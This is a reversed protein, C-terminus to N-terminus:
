NWSIVEPRSDEVVNEMAVSQHGEGHPRSERGRVVIVGGVEPEDVPLDNNPHVLEGPDRAIGKRSKPQTQEGSPTRLQSCNRESRRYTTVSVKQGYLFGNAGDTGCMFWAHTPIGSVLTGYVSGTRLWIWNSRGVLAPGPEREKLRQQPAEARAYIQWLKLYQGGDERGTQVCTPRLRRHEDDGCFRALNARRVRILSLRFFQYPLFIKM